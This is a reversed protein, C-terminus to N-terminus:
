RYVVSVHADDTFVLNSGVNETHILKAGTPLQVSTNLIYRNIGGQKVVYLDYHSGIGNEFVRDPLTYLYTIRTTSYPQLIFRSSFVTFNEDNTVQPGIFQNTTNHIALLQAGPPVVAEAFLDSSWWDGNAYTLTLNSVASGDSLLEVHNDIARGIGFDAKANGLNTEVISISDANLARSQNQS